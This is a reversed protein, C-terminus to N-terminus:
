WVGAAAAVLLGRQKLVGQEEVAAAAKLPSQHGTITPNNLGPVTVATGIIPDTCPMVVRECGSGVGGAEQVIDLDM